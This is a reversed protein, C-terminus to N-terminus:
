GGFLARGASFGLACAAITLAVSGVAYLGLNLWAGRQIMQLSEWSFASFTTFGGCFGVALILRPVSGGGKSTEWAFFGGILLSGLINIGFTAWPFDSPFRSSTWVGIWYRLNAGAVAGVGIWISRM